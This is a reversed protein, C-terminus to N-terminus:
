PEAGLRKSFLVLDDGDTWYDLVPAHEVFGLGRHFARTRDYQPTGSTRVPLLRQGRARLDDEAARVMAAGRGGGQLDPRVAIM